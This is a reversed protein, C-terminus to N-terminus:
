LNILCQFLNIYFLDLIFRKNYIININLKMFCM